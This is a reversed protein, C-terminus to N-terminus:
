GLRRQFFLQPGSEHRREQTRSHKVVAYERPGLRTASRKEKKVFPNLVTTQPGNYTQKDMGNQYHVVVQEEPGIDHMTILLGILVLIILVGCCGACAGCGVVAQQNAM